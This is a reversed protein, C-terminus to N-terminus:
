QLENRSRLLGAAAFIVDNTTDTADEHKGSSESMSSQKTRIQLFRVLWDESGRAEADKWITSSLSLRIVSEATTASTTGKTTLHLSSENLYTRSSTIYYVIALSDRCLLGDVYELQSCMMHQCSRTISEIHTDTKAESPYSLIFTHVILTHAQELLLGTWENHM